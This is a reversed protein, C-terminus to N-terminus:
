KKEGIFKLAVSNLSYRKGSPKPGDNFVHGLHGECQVCVVEVRKTFFGVDERFLLNELKLPEFFSPWGTGPNYKAESSFLPLGCAACAYIGPDQSKWYKGSYAKESEKLRLVKYQEPKLKAKWEKDTLTIKKM